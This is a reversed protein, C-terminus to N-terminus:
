RRPGSLPPLPADFSPPLRHPRRFRAPEFGELPQPMVVEYAFKDRWAQKADYLL